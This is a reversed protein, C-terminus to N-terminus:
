YLGANLRQARRNNQNGCNSVLTFLGYGQPRKYGHQHRQGKNSHDLMGLLLLAVGETTLMPDHQKHIKEDDLIKLLIGWIHLKQYRVGQM